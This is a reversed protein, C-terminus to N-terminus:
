QGLGPEAVLIGADELGKGSVSTARALDEAPDYGAGDFGYRSFGAMGPGIVARALDIPAINLTFLEGGADILTGPLLDELLASV